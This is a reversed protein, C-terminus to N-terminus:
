EWDPYQDESLLVRYEGNRYRKVSLVARVGLAERRMNNTTGRWGHFRKIGSDMNGGWGESIDDSLSYSVTGNGVIEMVKVVTGVSPVYGPEQNFSKALDFEDWLHLALKAM